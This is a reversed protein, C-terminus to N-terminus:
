IVFPSANGLVATGATVGVMGLEDLARRMEAISAQVHPLPTCAFAAFRKPYERVHTRLFRQRAPAADV